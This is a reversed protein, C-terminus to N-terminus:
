IQIREVESEPLDRSSRDYLRTTRSDRHGAFIQTMELSGGLQRHLTIASARLTHCGAHAAIGSRRGRRRIMEWARQPLLPRDTIQGDRIVRPYPLRQPNEASPGPVAPSCPLATLRSAPPYPLRQPNEASPGPVAPSCPLATLRSAPSFTLTASAPVSSRPMKPLKRRTSSLRARDWHPATRRTPSLARRRARRLLAPSPSTRPGATGALVPHGRRHASKSHRRHYTSARRMPPVAEPRGWLCPPATRGLRTKAPTIRAAAPRQQRHLRRRHNSRYPASVRAGRRRQSQVCILPHRSVRSSTPASAPHPLGPSRDARAAFLASSHNWRAM